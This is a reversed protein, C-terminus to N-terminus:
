GEMLVVGSPDPHDQVLQGGEVLHRAELRSSASDRWNPPQKTRPIWTNGARRSRYPLFPASVMEPSQPM